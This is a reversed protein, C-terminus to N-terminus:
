KIDFIYIYSLFFSLFFSVTFLLSVTEVIGTIGGENALVLRNLSFVSLALIVAEKLFLHFRQCQFIM